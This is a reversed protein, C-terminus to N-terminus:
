KSMFYIIMTIFFIAGPWIITYAPILGSGFFLVALLTTLFADILLIETFDHRLGLIMFILFFSLLTMYGILYPQGIAVGVGVMIDVPNTVNNLVDLDYVVM